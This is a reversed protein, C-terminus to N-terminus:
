PTYLCACSARPLQQYDSHALGDTDLYIKEDLSASLVQRLVTAHHINQKDDNNRCDDDLYTYYNYIPNM